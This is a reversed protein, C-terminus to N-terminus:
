KDEDTVRKEKIQLQSLDNDSKGQSKMVYKLSSLLSNLFVNVLKPNNKIWYKWLYDIKNESIEEKLQKYFHKFLERPKRNGKHEGIKKDLDVQTEVIELEQIVGGATKTFVDRTFMFDNQWFEDDALLNYFYEFLLQDPPLVGPLIVVNKWNKPFDNAQDADLVILSKNSFEPVKKQILQKYNSCGLSIGNMISAYKNIPQRYILAKYFDIAEQDEFYINAKPKLTNINRQITTTTIDAYIETWNWDPNSVIKGYTDSLYITKYNKRYEQSKNWVKEIMIPSHSTMIVQINLKRCEEDLIDILNEQATPFLGADAEDILLLGGKYDNYEDKLKKFSLLALAIQGANDEGVSVSDHDYNDGHAVASSLTGTTGTVNSVQRNLLRNVLGSFETKHKNLYSFDKISYEREAIPILRKLSLFIVPHTFNRSTNHGDSVTSNNRVVARISNEGRKTFTLKGTAEKNSYGDYLEVDVDISGPLDFKDSLRFHDNYQSKFDKDTITKYKLDIDSQYDKNFSFIQAAIGLISSKSTGNKGCILTITNGLEININELGRFKNISIKKLITKVKKNSM